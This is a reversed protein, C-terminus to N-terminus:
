ALLFTQVQVTLKSYDKAPLRKILDARVGAARAAVAALYAKSTELMGISLGMAALEREVQEIDAGTLSEFDLTLVDYTKDEFVLPKSLKFEM